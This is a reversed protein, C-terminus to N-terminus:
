KCNSELDMNFYYYLHQIQKGQRKLYLNMGEM